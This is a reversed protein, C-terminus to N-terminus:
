RLVWVWVSYWQSTGSRVRVSLRSGEPLNVASLPISIHGNWDPWRAAIFNQVIPVESGAAGVGVEVSPYANPVLTSSGIGSGIGVAIARPRYALSSVVEVWGSWAHYEAGQVGVMSTDSYQVGFADLCSGGVPFLGSPGFVTLTLKNADLGSGGTQIRAAVRVGLPIRVPLVFAYAALASGSTQYQPVQPITAIIQEAGAPGIGIQLITRMQHQTAWVVRFAEGNIPCAGTLQTWAGFTHATGTNSPVNVDTSFAAPGEWAEFEVVRAYNSNYLTIYVRVKTTTVPAFFFQRWVKDNSTVSGQTVWASGDWTQVEFNRIGEDTFVLDLTPESGRNGSNALTIVDIRNITKPGSFTVELWQPTNSGASYDSNWGGTGQGWGAGTRNGDIASSAPFNSNVTSSATITAGNAALAVNVAPAVVASPTIASGGALPWNSM